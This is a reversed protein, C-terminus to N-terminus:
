AGLPLQSATPVPVWWQQSENCAFAFCLDLPEYLVVFLDKLPSTPTFEV